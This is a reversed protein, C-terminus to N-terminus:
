SCHEDVWEQTKTISKFGVLTAGTATNLVTPVSRVKHHIASEIDKGIDIEDYDINNNNLVASVAKCPQCGETYFKIIM